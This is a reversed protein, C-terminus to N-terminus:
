IRRHGRRYGAPSEGTERKFIRHFYKPSEFGTEWAIEARSKGAAKLAAVLEDVQKANQM